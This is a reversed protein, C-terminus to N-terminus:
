GGAGVLVWATTAAFTLLAFLVGVIALLAVRETQDLSRWRERVGPDDAGRRSPDGEEASSPLHAAPSDPPGGREHWAVDDPHPPPAGETEWWPEERLRVEEDVARWDADASGPLTSADGRSGERSTM